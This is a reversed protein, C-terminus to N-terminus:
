LGVYSGYWSDWIVLGYRSGYLLRDVPYYFTNVIGLRGDLMSRDTLYCVPGYLLVYAVFAALLIATYTRVSSRPSNVVESQM